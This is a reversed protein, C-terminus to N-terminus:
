EANDATYAWHTVIERLGVDNRRKVYHPFQRGYVPLTSSIGDLCQM